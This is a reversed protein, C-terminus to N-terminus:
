PYLRQIKKSLIFGEFSAKSDELFSYFRKTAKKLRKKPIISFSKKRINRVDFRFLHPHRLFKRELFSNIDNFPIEKNIGEVIAFFEDFTKNEMEM